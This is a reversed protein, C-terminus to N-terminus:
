PQRQQQAKETRAKMDMMQLQLKASMNALPNSSNALDEIAARVAADGPYRSAAARMATSKLTMVSIAPLGREIDPMRLVELLVDHVAPSDMVALVELSNKAADRSANSPSGDQGARMILTALDRVAQDTLQLQVKGAQKASDVMDALPQLRQLDPLNANQLTSAAFENWSAAGQVERLAAMRVVPEIERQSAQVLAARAEPNASFENALIQIIQLQAKTDQETDLGRALYQVLEPHRTQRLAEWATAKTREDSTSMALEAGARITAADVGTIDGQREAMSLLDGLTQVRLGRIVRDLNFEVFSTPRIILSTDEHITVSTPFSVSAPVIIGAASPRPLSQQQLQMRRLQYERQQQATGAALRAMEDMVVRKGADVQAGKTRSSPDGKFSIRIDYEALDAKDRPEADLLVLRPVNRLRAILNDRFTQAAANGVTDEGQIVVPHVRVTFSGPPAPQPPPVPQDLRANVPGSQTQPASTAEAAPPAPRPPAAEEIAATTAVPVMLRWGLLTAAAAVALITGFLIARSRVRRANGAWDAAVLARAREMLGAPVPPAFGTALRLQVRWEAACDACSSLHVEVSARESEHLRTIDREDLIRTIEHCNM